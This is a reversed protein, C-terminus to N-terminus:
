HYAEFARLWKRLEVYTRLRFVFEAGGIQDIRPWRTLKVYGYGSTCRARPQTPSVSPGTLQGTLLQSTLPDLPVWM